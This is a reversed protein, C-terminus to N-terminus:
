HRSIAFALYVASAVAVLILVGLEQGTVWPYGGAERQSRARRAQTRKPIRGFLIDYHGALAPLYGALMLCALGLALRAFHIDIWISPIVFVGVLDVVFALVLLLDAPPLWYTTEVGVTRSRISSERQIRFTFATVAFGVLIGGATWVGSLDVTTSPVGGPDCTTPTGHGAQRAIGSM